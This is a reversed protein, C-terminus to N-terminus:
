RREGSGGVGGIGVDTVGGVCVAEACDKAGGVAVDRVGRVDAFGEAGNGVGVPDAGGVTDGPEIEGAIDGIFAVFCVVLVLGVDVARVDGGNRCFEFVM